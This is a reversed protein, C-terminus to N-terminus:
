WSVVAIGGGTNEAPKDPGVVTVVCVNVTPPCNNSCAYTPECSSIICKADRTECIVSLNPQDPLAIVVGGGPLAIGGGQINSSELRTIVEKNLQLSKKIKKM